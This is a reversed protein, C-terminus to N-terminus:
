ILEMSHNGEVIEENHVTYGLKAERTWRRAAQQLIASRKLSLTPIKERSNFEALLEKERKQRVVREFQEFFDVINLDSKLYDKVDANLSESLQTSRMGLTFAKKLHCKAWKEKLQYIGDLWSSDQVSYTERLIKWAEEFETESEYEFMCKKFDKLLSSDDDKMRNGLHKIANQMIHWNCLGHFTNPMEDKLARAMTADQDTFITQPRKGNQADLFSRFLWKFSDVIKNYLLAAGFIAVGKHHNFGIFVGLPRLNKNTGYTTGFTVVDGFYGYDIIMRADAWFFNTIQEENDLQVVYHFSPNNIQEDQFYRLICGAEGYKMAKERRTKLYTKHDNAIYGLSDRGGAERSMLEHADKPKIGASRVSERKLRVLLRAHCNTRTEDRHSSHVRRKDELRVGHKSCVSGRTTVKEDLKSRNLFSKRTSFGVQKGYHCWHEWAEDLTDFEMEMYPTWDKESDVMMNVVQSHDEMYPNVQTMTTRPDDDDNTTVTRPDDSTM